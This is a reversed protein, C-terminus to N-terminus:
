DDIKESLFRRKVSYDFIMVLESGELDYKKLWDNFKNLFNRELFLQFEEKSLTSYKSVDLELVAEVDEDNDDTTTFSFSHRTTYSKKDGWFIETRSDLISGMPHRIDIGKLIYIDSEYLM